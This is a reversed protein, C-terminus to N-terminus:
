LYFRITIAPFEFNGEEEEEEQGAGDFAHRAAREVDPETRRPAQVVVQGHEEVVEVQGGGGHGDM